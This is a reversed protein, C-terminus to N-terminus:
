RLIESRSAGLAMRLGIENIRQNVAHAIVTYIGIGALTIALAAFAGIIWTQLRRWLFQRSMIEDMSRPLFTAISGNTKAVAAQIARTYGAPDGKM